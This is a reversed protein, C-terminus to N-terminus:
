YRRDESRWRRSLKPWNGENRPRPAREGADREGCVRHRVISKFRTEVNARTGSSAWMGREVRLSNGARGLFGLGGSLIGCSCGGGGAQSLSDQRSLM